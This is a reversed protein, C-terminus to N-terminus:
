SCQELQSNTPQCIKGWTRISNGHEAHGCFPTGVTTHLELENCTEPAFPPTMDMDCCYTTNGVQPCCNNRNDVRSDPCLHHVCEPTLDLQHKVQKAVRQFFFRIRSAVVSGKPTEREFAFGIIQFTNRLWKPQLTYLCCVVPRKGQAM